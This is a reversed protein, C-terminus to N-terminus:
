GSQQQVAVAGTAQSGCKPCKPIMVPWPPDGALPPLFVEGCDRCQKQHWAEKGSCKPCAFPPEDAVDLQTKFVHGCARCKLSANYDTWSTASETGSSRWVYLVVAFVLIAGAGVLKVTKSM